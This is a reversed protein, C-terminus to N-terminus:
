ALHEEGHCCGRSRNRRRLRFPRRMQFKAENILRQLMQLSLRACPSLKKLIGLPVNGCCKQPLPPCPSQLISQPLSQSHACDGISVHHPGKTSDDDSPKGKIRRCRAARESIVPSRCSLPLEARGPWPITQLAFPRIGRERSAGTVRAAISNHGGSVAAFYKPSWPCASSTQWTDGSVTFPTQPGAQRPTPAQPAAPSVQPKSGLAGSSGQSGTNKRVAEYGHDGPETVDSVIGLAFSVSDVAYRAFEEKFSKERVLAERIESALRLFEADSGDAALCIKKGSDGTAICKMVEKVAPYDDFAKYDALFSM